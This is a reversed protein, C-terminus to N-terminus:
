GWSKIFLLKGVERNLFIHNKRQEKSITDFSQLSSSPIRIGQGQLKTKHAFIDRSLAFFPRFNDVVSQSFSNYICWMQMWTEVYESTENREIKNVYLWVDM